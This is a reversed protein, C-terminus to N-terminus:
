PTNNFYKSILSDNGADIYRIINIFGILVPRVFFSLVVPITLIVHCDHWGMFRFPKAKKINMKNRKRYKVPFVKRRHVYGSYLNHIGSVEM